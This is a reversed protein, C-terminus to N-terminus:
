LETQVVLVMQHLISFLHLRKTWLTYKRTKNTHTESDVFFIVLFFFAVNKPANAFNRFLSSDEDFRDTQRDTRGDTQGDAYFLEAGVPRIKM